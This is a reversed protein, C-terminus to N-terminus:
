AYSLGVTLGVAVVILVLSILPRYFFWALTIILFSVVSGVILGFLLAIWSALTSLLGGLLPIFSLISAIPAFFIWIGIVSCFWGLFRMWNRKSQRERTIEEFVAEKTGIAKEFIWLIENIPATLSDAFKCLFCCCNACFGQSEDWYQQNPLVPVEGEAEEIHHKVFTDNQQQGVVTTPGCKVEFFRIRLDGAEYIQKKQKSIYIHNDANVSIDRNSQKLEMLFKPDAQNITEEKVFMSIKNKTMKKLEDSLFYNGIHVTPALIEESKRLFNTHVNQYCMNHNHFRSSDIFSESWVLNCEYHDQNDRRNNKEEWQQMEVTRVIKVANFSAMTPFDRDKINDDSSSNAVLFVLHGDNEKSFMNADLTACEKLEVGLRHCTVVYGKENKWLLFIAFIFLMSGIVPGLIISSVSNSSSSSEDVKQLDNSSKALFKNETTFTKVSTFHESQSGEISQLFCFSLFILFIISIRRNLM